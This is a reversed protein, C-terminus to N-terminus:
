CRAVENYILMKVSWRWLKLYIFALYNSWTRTYFTQFANTFYNKVTDPPQFVAVQVHFLCNALHTRHFLHDSFSRLIWLYVCSAIMRLHETLFNRLIWLYVHLRKKLLTALFLWVPTFDIFYTGRYFLHEQIIWLIWLVFGTNSDRKLLTATRLAQLKILSSESM